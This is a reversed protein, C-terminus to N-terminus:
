SLYNYIYVVKEVSINLEEDQVILNNMNLQHGIKNSIKLHFM